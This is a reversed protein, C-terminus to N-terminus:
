GPPASSFPFEEPLAAIGAKVPNWEIYRWVRAFEGDNRILRDYSEDQWFPRGRQELMRVAEHGTFGKLPGLWQRASVLPTVLLHVHNPMVVFAHLEYRGFRREVESLSHIVMEAIEPQRLSVPGSRPRDLLRDMVVFAEGSTLRNPPFVRSEPISGRLRFTVFM